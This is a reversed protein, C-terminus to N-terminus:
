IPMLTFPVSARFSPNFYRGGGPRCCGRREAKGQGQEKDREEGRVRRYDGVDGGDWSEAREGPQRHGTQGSGDGDWARHLAPGPAGVKGRRGDRAPASPDGNGFDPHGLHSQGLSSPFSRGRGGPESPPPMLM